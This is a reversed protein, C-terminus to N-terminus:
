LHHLGSNEDFLEISSDIKVKKIKNYVDEFTLGREKNIQSKLDELNNEAIFKIIHPHIKTSKIKVYKMINGGNLQSSANM